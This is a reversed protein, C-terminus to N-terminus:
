ITEVVNSAVKNRLSSVMGIPLVARTPLRDAYTDALDVLGFRECGCRCDDIAEAGTWDRNAIDTL